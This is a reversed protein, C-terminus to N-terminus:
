AKAGLKVLTEVVLNVPVDRRVTVSGIRQPLVWSVRGERAKKDRGMAPLLDDVSLGPISVPLRLRRLLDEQRSADRPNMIGLGVAIEAAGVMGIAVAEGHRYAEFGTVTEVAHGITHGYNLIARVGSEKEDQQVVEAKIEISRAVIPDLVNPALGLLREASEEIRRFLTEDRIVGHKTLEALAASVERPPLTALTSTDAVVLSPPYFAGILNKGRPHDVAVKGGVSSDVQALLSTPVQVLRLGRLFTAAVFGALDGVVGGGLAVVVDRRETGTEVLWDYLASATGLTKSAEGPAVQRSAVEIRARRLGREAMEGYLQWANEDAIMRVRGDLSHSALLDGLQNLLGRGLVIDYDGNSAKVTLTRRQGSDLRGEVAELVREVAASPDVDDTSVVSDAIQRYLPLRAASMAELRGRPDGSALLPRVEASDNRLRALITDTSAELLVVISGSIAQRNAPVTVAGGGLAVVCDGASVARRVATSELERFVAEGDEAFIREISKGAARVVEYDTDVLERGLRASLARGIASKGTGSLGILVVNM